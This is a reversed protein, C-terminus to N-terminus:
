SILIQRERAECGPPFEKNLEEMRTTEEEDEPIDDETSHESEDEIGLDDVGM